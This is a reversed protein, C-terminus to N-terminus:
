RSIIFYLDRSLILKKSLLYKYIIKDINYPFDCDHNKVYYDIILPGIINCALGIKKIKGLYEQGYENEGDELLLAFTQNISLEEDLYNRLNKFRNSLDQEKLEKKKIFAIKEKYLRKAQILLEKAYSQTMGSYNLETLDEQCKLPYMLFKEIDKIEKEHKFALALKAYPQGKYWNKFLQQIPTKSEWPESSSCEIHLHIHPRQSKYSIELGQTYRLIIFKRFELYELIPEISKNQSNDTFLRIKFYTKYITEPVILIQNELTM